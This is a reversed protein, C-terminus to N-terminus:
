GSALRTMGIMSTRVRIDGGHIKGVERMIGESEVQSFMGAVTQVAHASLRDLTLITM